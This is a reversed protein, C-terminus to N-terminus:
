KQIKLNFDKNIAVVNNEKQVGTIWEKLKPTCDTCCMQSTSKGTTPEIIEITAIPRASVPSPTGIEKGCADCYYKVAM